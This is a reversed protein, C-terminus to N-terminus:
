VSERLLRITCDFFGTQHSFVLNVLGSTQAATVEIAQRSEPLAEKEVKEKLFVFPAQARLITALLIAL